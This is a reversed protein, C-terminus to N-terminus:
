RHEQRQQRQQPGAEELPLRAAVGDDGKRAVRVCVAVFMALFLITALQPGLLYPSQHFFEAALRSMM